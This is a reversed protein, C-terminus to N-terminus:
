SQGYGYSANGPQVQSSNVKEQFSEINLIQEEYPYLENYIESAKRRNNPNLTLM